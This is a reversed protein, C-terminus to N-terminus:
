ESAGGAWGRRYLDTKLLRCFASENNKPLIRIELPLRPRSTWNRHEWMERIFRRKNVQIKIVSCMASIVLQNFRVKPQYIIEIYIVAFYTTFLHYILIM